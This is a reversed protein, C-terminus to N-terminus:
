PQGVSFRVVNLRYFLTADFVRCDVLPFLPYAVTSVVQTRRMPDELWARLRAQDQGNLAAVNELVLAGCEGVPLALTRGLQWSVPEPLWPALLCLISEISTARGELLINHHATTVRRWDAASPSDPPRSPSPGHRIIDTTM